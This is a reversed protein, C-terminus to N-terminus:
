YSGVAKLLFFSALCSLLFSLFFIRVKSVLAQTIQSRGEEEGEDPAM